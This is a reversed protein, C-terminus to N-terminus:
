VGQVFIAPNKSEIMEELEEDTYSKDAAFFVSYISKDIKVMLM